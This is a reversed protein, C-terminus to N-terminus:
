IKKRRLVEKEECGLWEIEIEKVGGGEKGEWALFLGWRRGTEDVRETKVGRGM